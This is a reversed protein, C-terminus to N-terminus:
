DERGFCQRLFPVPSGAPLVKYLKGEIDDPENGETAPMKKAYNVKLLTALSGSAFKLQLTECTLTRANSVSTSVRRSILNATDM